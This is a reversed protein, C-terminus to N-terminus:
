GGPTSFSRGAGARRTRRRTAGAAPAPAPYHPMLLASAIAATVATIFFRSSL